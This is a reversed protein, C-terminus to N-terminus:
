RLCEFSVDTPTLSAQDQESKSEPDAHDLVGNIVAIQQDAM